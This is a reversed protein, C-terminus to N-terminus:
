SSLLAQQEHYEMGTHYNYYFPKSQTNNSAYVKLLNDDVEKFRDVFDEVVVSHNSVRLLGFKDSNPRKFIAYDGQHVVGIYSYSCPVIWLGSAQNYIGYILQDQKKLLALYLSNSNQGIQHLELLIAGEPLDQAPVIRLFEPYFIGKQQSKLIDIKVQLSVESLVGFSSVAYYHSTNEQGHALKVEIVFLRHEMLAVINVINNALEVVDTNKDLIVKTIYKPIPMDFAGNVFYNEYSKTDRYIVAKQDFSSEQTRLRIVYEKSNYSIPFVGTRLEEYRKGKKGKNDYVRIFGKKTYGILKYGQEYNAHYNSLVKAIKKSKAKYLNKGVAMLGSGIPEVHLLAPEYLIGMHHKSPLTCTKVRLQRKTELVFVCQKQRPINKDFLAFSSHGQAKQVKNLLKWQWFRTKVFFHKVGSVVTFNGLVILKISLYIFPVVVTNNKDIVGFYGQQNEVVGYGTTSFLFASKYGPAICIKKEANCYGYLGNKALFPIMEKTQKVNRM